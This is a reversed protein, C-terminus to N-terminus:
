EEIEEAKARLWEGEARTVFGGSAWEADAQDALARLADPLGVVLMSEADEIRTRRRAEPLGAWHQTRGDLVEFKHRAMAEAAAKLNLNRM